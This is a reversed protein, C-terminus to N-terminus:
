GGTPGPDFSVQIHFTGLILRDGHAAVVGQQPLLRQDNLYTGNASGLDTVILYYDRRQLRCHYRSVGRKFAYFDTLDFLDETGPSEGRGLIVPRELALAVCAGSPLFQLVVNMGPAFHTHGREAPLLSPSRDLVHTEPPSPVELLMGCQPCRTNKPHCFFGCETCQVPHRDIRLTAQSFDSPM